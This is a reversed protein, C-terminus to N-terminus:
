PNGRHKYPTNGNTEIVGTIGKRTAARIKTAMSESKNMKMIPGGAYTM